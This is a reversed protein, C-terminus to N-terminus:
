EYVGGWGINKINFIYFFFKEIERAIEYVDSFRKHSKGESVNVDFGQPPPSLLSIPLPLSEIDEIGRVIWTATRKERSVKGHDYWLALKISVGELTRMIYYYSSSYLEKIINSSGKKVERQLIHFSNNLQEMFEINFPLEVIKIPPSLLDVESLCIKFQGGGTRKALEPILLLGYYVQDRRGSLDATRLLNGSDQNSISEKYSFIIFAGLFNPFVNVPLVPRLRKRKEWEEEEGYIEALNINIIRVNSAIFSIVEPAIAPRFYIAIFPLTIGSGGQSLAKGIVTAEYKCLICIPRTYRAEKRTSQTYKDKDTLPIDDNTWAQQVGKGGGIAKGYEDMQIPEDVFIPSRCLICKRDTEPFTEKLPEVLDGSIFSAVHYRVEYRWKEKRVILQELGKRFCDKLEEYDEQVIYQLVKTIITLALTLIDGSLPEEKFIKRYLKM